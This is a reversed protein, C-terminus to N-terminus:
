YAAKYWENESPIWFAVATNTNPNCENKTVAIGNSANSLDYAGNETTTASQPGSPQGNSMWNAFRAANFWNVYAIPRNSSLGDNIMITYTYTGPSGSRSIGAINLDSAMNADYLEFRDTKAVANLFQTYQAITVGYQGIQYPYAVGGFGTTDSNNGANGVAVLSYKVLPADPMSIGGACRTTSPSTDDGSCGAISACLFCLVFLYFHRRNGLCSFFTKYM